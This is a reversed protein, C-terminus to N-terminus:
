GGGAAELRALVQDTIDVRESHMVVGPNGANLILDFGEERMIAEIAPGIEERVRQLGTTRHTQAQSQIDQQYRQFSTLADQYERQLQRQQAVDSSDVAAIRGQIEEVQAQRSALESQYQAQLATIEAALEQGAPSQVAVFDVDVVAIRLPTDQAVVPGAAAISLAAVALGTAM